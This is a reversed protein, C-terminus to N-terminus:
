AWHAVAVATQRALDCCLQAVRRGSFSAVTRSAPGVTNEIACITSSNSKHTHHQQVVSCYYHFLVHLEGKFAAVFEEMDLEGSGNADASRHAGCM